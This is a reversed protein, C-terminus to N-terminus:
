GVGENGTFIQDVTPDFIQVVDSNNSDGISAQVIDRGDRIMNANGGQNNVSISIPQGPVRLEGYLLPVPDGEVILSTDGSYLYGPDEDPDTAPDPSLMGQIGQSALVIGVSEAAYVAFELVGTAETAWAANRTIAFIIIATIIKAGDSKSGAPIASITVDGEKIPTLLEKEDIDKGAFNITFNIGERHCDLLYEKFGPRNCDINRIIEGYNDAYMSFESGFRKEIEGVLYVKRKM